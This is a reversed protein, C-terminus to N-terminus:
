SQPLKWRNELVPNRILRAALNEVVERDVDKGGAALLDLHRVNVQVQQEARYFLEM